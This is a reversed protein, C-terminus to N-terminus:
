PIFGMFYATLIIASVVVAIVALVVVARIYYRDGDVPKTKDDRIITM